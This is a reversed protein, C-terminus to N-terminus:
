GHVNGIEGINLRLHLSGHVFVACGSIRMLLAPM